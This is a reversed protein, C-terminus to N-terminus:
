NVGPGTDQQSPVQQAAQGSFAEPKVFEEGAHAAQPSQQTEASVDAAAEPENPAVAPHRQLSDWELSPSVDKAYLRHGLGPEGDRGAFAKVQHNGEVTVQQGKEVSALVNAGLQEKNIGVDYYTVAADRWQETSRDYFRKNEALRFAVIKGNPTELEAPENVVRGKVSSKGLNFTEAM